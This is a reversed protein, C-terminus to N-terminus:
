RNKMVELAIRLAYSILTILTAVLGVSISLADKWTDDAYRMALGFYVLFCLVMVVCGIGSIMIITTSSFAVFIGVIAVAILGLLVFFLWGAMKEFEVWYFVRAVIGCLFMVGTCAALISIVVTSGGEAMVLASLPGLVSGGLFCFLASLFLNGPTCGSEEIWDPLFFSMIFYVIGGGLAIIPNVMGVLLGALMLLTGLSTLTSIKSFVGGRSGALERDIENNANM